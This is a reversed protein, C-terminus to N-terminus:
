ADLRTPRQRGPKWDPCGGGANYRRVTKMSMGLERAIQRLSTGSAHLQRAREYRELRRQRKASLAPEQVTTAVVPAPPLATSAAAPQAALAPAETVKAAEQLAPELKTYHRDFLKEVAERLNKLLHWRDAVQKAQPAGAL